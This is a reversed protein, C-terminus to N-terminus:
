KLRWLGTAHLGSCLCCCCPPRIALKLQPQRRRVAGGRQLREAVRLERRRVQDKNDALEDVYEEHLDMWTDHTSRSTPKLIRLLNKDIQELQEPTLTDGLPKQQEECVAANILLLIVVLQAPCLRCCIMNM